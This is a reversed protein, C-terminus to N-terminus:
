QKILKGTGSTDTYIISLNPNGSYYVNGLYYISINLTQDANVYCDGTGLSTVSTYNTILDDLWMWGNGRIYIFNSTAYGKVTIDSSGTHIKFYSYIANISLDASGGGTWMELIFLDNTLTNTSTIDGSGYSVIQALDKVSLHVNIEKKFSRVWNCKNNNKIVLTDNNMETIILPLLHEGGEVTIKNVTDQTIILNIQDYLEIAKIDGAVREEKIINGTSKLCDSKNEKKCSIIVLLAALIWMVKVKSSYGELSKM